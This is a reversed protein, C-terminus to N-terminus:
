ISFNTKLSESLWNIDEQFQPELVILFLSHEVLETMGEVIAM